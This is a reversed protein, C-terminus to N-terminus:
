KLEAADEKGKDRKTRQTEGRQGKHREEKDGPDRQRKRTGGLSLSISEPGNISIRENGYSLAEGAM